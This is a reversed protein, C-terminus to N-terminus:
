NIMCFNDSGRRKELFDNIYEIAIKASKGEFASDVVANYYKARKFVIPRYAENNKIFDIIENPYNFKEVLHNEVFGYYDSFKDADAFEYYLSVVNLLTAELHISTNAAIILDQRKLFEFVHEEKANSINVEKPIKFIRNDRPHQRFSISLDPFHKLIKEILNIVANTRDIKNACIGINEITTKKNRWKFYNDFKPMGVLEVRGEIVGCEKYKDLSDQGELLSLDFKIPPFYTSVSAHQIYITPINLKKAAYLFSRQTYVHDNAFIIAKPKSNLLIRIAEEYLGTSAFIVDIHKVVKIGYAGYLHFFIKPFLYIHRFSYHLKLFPCNEIEKVKPNVAVFISDSLSEKVFGLSDRNNKTGILLWVKNKIVENDKTFKSGYRICGVIDYIIRRFIRLIKFLFTNENFSILGNKPLIDM